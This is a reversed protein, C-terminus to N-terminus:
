ETKQIINKVLELYIDAIQNSTQIIKSTNHSDLANLFDIKLNNLQEEYNTFDIQSSLLVIWSISKNLEQYITYLCENQKSFIHNWYLETSFISQERTKLAIDAIEQKTSHKLSNHAITNGFIKILSLSNYFQEIFFNNLVPQNPYLKNLAIKSGVGNITEIVHYERLFDLAKRSTKESVNYEKALKSISPLSDNPQYTGNSINKLISLVVQTYLYEQNRNSNWSFTIKNKPSLDSCILKIYNTSTKKAGKCLATILIQVMFHNHKKYSKLVTELLKKITKINRNLIDTIKKETLIPLRVSSILILFLDNLIPNNLFGFAYLYIGFLQDFLEYNTSIKECSFNNIMAELTKFQEDTAQDLAMISVKPLVLAMTDFIDDIMKGMDVFEQRYADNNVFNYIDFIVQAPAGKKMTIYGNEQLLSLASRITNRSVLYEDSLKPLPPLKDNLLYKGNYIDNLILRYVYNYLTKEDEM